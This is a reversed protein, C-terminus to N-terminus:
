RVPTGAEHSPRNPSAMAEHRAARALLAQANDSLGLRNWHHRVLTALVDRLGRHLTGNADARALDCGAARFAAGWPAAFALPQEAGFIGTASKTTDLHTLHALAAAMSALRDAPPEHGLPRTHAVRDWVDARELPDLRAARLMTSCLVLSLERRGPRDPSSCRAFRLTSSSDAHFLVHAAEMAPEGGFALVEPEYRGTNWDQLFGTTTTFELLHELQRAAQQKTAAPGAHVRLRWHPHKRLYWWSQVTGDQCFQDLAPALERAAADEAGAWNRFQLRYQLWTDHHHDALAARGATRYLAAAEAVDEACLAEGANTPNTRALFALVQEETVARTSM